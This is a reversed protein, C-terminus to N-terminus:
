DNKGKGKSGGAAAKKAGKMGSKKGTMGSKKTQLMVSKLLTLMKKNEELNKFVNSDGGFIGQTSGSTNWNLVQRVNPKFIKSMKFRDLRWQNADTISFLKLYVRISDSTVNAIQTLSDYVKMFLGQSYALAKCAHEKNKALKAKTKEQIVMVTIPDM